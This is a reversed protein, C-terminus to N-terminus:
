PTHGTCQIISHEEAHLIQHISYRSVNDCVFVSSCFNHGSIGELVFLFVVFQLVKSIMLMSGKLDFSLVSDQSLVM